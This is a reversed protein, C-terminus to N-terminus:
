PTLRDRDRPFLTAEKVSDLGCLIQTLRELGISWGSHSPSGYRFSDIYSEFNKPNLGKAKLREILLKPIHIRQGGSCIEMGGYLADFGESLIADKKEGQPMIYFPKISSPWSYTFVIDGKYIECLKKEQEPTFDEGSKGGAKKIAEEYSLYVAKPVKLTVGLLDLEDKCKKVVNTVIFIIAEELHKMVGMQDAFAVEIDMQRIENIHRTTNHKEARWVPTIMFTREISCALMQKYLQPSQALYAKKEFYQVPFLETGGESAASIICPPQMEIFKKMYFHERFSHAIENQIKFIAQTRRRHLDLFRYDLRKALETKSFDSVDIPLPQEADALVEIEEPVIERGGPAKANKKVIGKVVVVSERSLQSMAKFVEPSCEPKFATVQIDGSIDRVIIFKIKGLDRADYLWGAIVVKKGDDEPRLHVVMERNKALEGLNVM